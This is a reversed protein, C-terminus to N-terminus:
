LSIGEKELHKKLKKRLRSLRVSINHASTGFKEALEEIPDSFCYRRVFLVRTEKDLSALFGDIVAALENAEIEAEVSSSSPLCDALEDLSADYYGNRKQATNSRYRKVALNRVIRFLYGPLCEPRKPPVTNWVGLYADNVCEEADSADKLINEAIKRCTGGYKQALEAIAQESRAFFLELIENDEM